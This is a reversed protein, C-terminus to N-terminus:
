NFNSGVTMSRNPNSLVVPRSPSRVKGASLARRVRSPGKKSCRPVNIKKLALHIGLPGQVHKVSGYAGVLLEDIQLFEKFTM